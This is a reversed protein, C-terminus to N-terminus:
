VRAPACALLGGAIGDDLGDPELLPLTLLLLVARRFTGLDRLDIIGRQAPEM